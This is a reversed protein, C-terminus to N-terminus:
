LVWSQQIRLGTTPLCAEKVSFFTEASICFGPIHKEEGILSLSFFFLFFSIRSKLESWLKKTLKQQQQKQKTANPDKQETENQKTKNKRCLDHM